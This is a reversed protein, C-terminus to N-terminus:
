GVEWLPLGPTMVEPRECTTTMRYPRRQDSSLQFACLAEVIHRAFSATLRPSRGRLLADAMDSVGMGRMNAGKSPDTPYHLPEERLFRRASPGTLAELKDTFPGDIRQISEELAKGDYLLVPGKFMNPDPVYLSADTGYLEMCPQRSSWVDFSANFNGVAGNQFEMVAAYTTPVEVPFPKNQIMRVPEPTRAYCFIQKIPGLLSVLASIYYPGMDFIPGAGKQYLFHPAPHWLESGRNVLNATFGTVRGAAGSDLLRRCTMLGAGLITDPASALLLGKSAALEVLKSADALTLALPKECYVHKGAELARRNVDYHSAPITLNVVLEVQPDALLEDVTESKAVGYRAAAQAAKEPFLDACAAVEVNKYHATLNALYTLSINGCGVVGVRIKEQSM